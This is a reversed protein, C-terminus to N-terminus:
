QRCRRNVNANRGNTQLFYNAKEHRNKFQVFLHRRQGAGPQGQESGSNGCGYGPRTDQIRDFDTTVAHIGDPSLAYIAFPLIKEEKTYVNFLHSVFTNDRKDNWIVLSDSGPIFQLMCGQQWSWAKSRGLVVWKDNDKLDAMGITIEDEPKPSRGEFGVEMGLVFRNTPDFQLKDYYGFWHHHGQTIVRAPVHIESKELGTTNKKFSKQASLSFYCTLFLLTILQITKM